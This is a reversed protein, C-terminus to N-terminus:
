MGWGGLFRQATYIKEWIFDLGCDWYQVYFWYFCHKILQTAVRVVLLEM